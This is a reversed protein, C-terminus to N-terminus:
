GFGPCLGKSEDMESSVFVFMSLFLIRGRQGGNRKSKDYSTIVEINRYQSHRRVEWAIRLKAVAEDANMQIM